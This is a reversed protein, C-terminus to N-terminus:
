DDGSPPVLASATKSCLRERQVHYTAYATGIGGGAALLGVIPVLLEADHVVAIITLGCMAALTLITSDKM